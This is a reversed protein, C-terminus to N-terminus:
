YPLLSFLISSELPASTYISKCFHSQLSWHFPHCSTFSSCLFYRISLSSFNFLLFFFTTLFFVSHLFSSWSFLLFLILICYIHSPQIADSVWNVHTQALEPLQHHAPFCPMSCDMPDCLTPCSQAVLSFQVSVM